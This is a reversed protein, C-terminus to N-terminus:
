EASQQGPDHKEGQVKGDVDGIKVIEGSSLLGPDKGIHEPSYVDGNEILTFM